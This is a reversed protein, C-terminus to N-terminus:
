AVRPHCVIYFDTLSVSLSVTVEYLLSKSRAQMLEAELASIQEGKDSQLDLATMMRQLQKSNLSGGSALVDGAM